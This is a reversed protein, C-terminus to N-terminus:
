KGEQKLSNLAGNARLLCMNQMGYKHKSRRTDKDELLKGSLVLDLEKKGENIEGMALQLRGIELHSFYILYHDTTIKHGNDLVTRFSLMAQEEAEEQPIDSEEPDLKAHKEPHAIYKLTVGRLFHALCFDDWFDLRLEQKVLLSISEPCTPGALKHCFWITPQMERTKTRDPNKM